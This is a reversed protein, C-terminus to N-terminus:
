RAARNNTLDLLHNAPTRWPRKQDGLRLRAPSRASRSPGVPPRRSPPVVVEPPRLKPDAPGPATLRALRTGAWLLVFLGELVM